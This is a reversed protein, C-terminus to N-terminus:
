IIPDRVSDVAEFVLGKWVQEEKSRTQQHLQKKVRHKSKQNEVKNPKPISATPSLPFIFEDPRKSTKSSENAKETELDSTKPTLPVKAIVSKNGNSSFQRTKAKTPRPSNKQLAITFIVRESRCYFIKHHM